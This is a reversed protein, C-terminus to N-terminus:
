AKAQTVIQTLADNFGDTTLTAGGIRGLSLGDASQGVVANKIAADFSDIYMGSERDAYTHNTTVSSIKGNAITVKATIGNSGRPVYYSATASYTGDKYGSTTTSQTTSNTQASVNPTSTSTTVESTSATADSATTTTPTSASPLKTDDGGVFLYAGTAIAVSAVVAGGVAMFLKDHQRQM